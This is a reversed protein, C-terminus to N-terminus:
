WRTDWDMAGKRGGIVYGSLGNRCYLIGVGLCILEGVEFVRCLTGGGLLGPGTPCWLNYGM